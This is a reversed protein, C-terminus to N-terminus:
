WCIHDSLISPPHSGRTLPSCLRCGPLQSLSLVTRLRLAPTPALRGPHVCIPTMSSLHAFLRSDRLDSAPHPNSLGLPSPLCKKLHSVQADPRWCPSSPISTFIPDWFTAPHLCLLPPPVGGSLPPLPSGSTNVSCAPQQQVVGLLVSTRVPQWSSQLLHASGSARATSLHRSAEGPVWRQLSETTRTQPIGVLMEKRAHSNLVLYGQDKWVM